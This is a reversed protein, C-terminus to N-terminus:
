IIRYVFTACTKTAFSKKTPMDKLSCTLTEITWWHWGVTKDSVLVTAQESIFEDRNFSSSAKLSVGKCQEETLHITKWEGGRDHSIVTTVSNDSVFLLACYLLHLM